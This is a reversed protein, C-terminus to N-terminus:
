LYNLYCVEFPPIDKMFRDLNLAYEKAVANSMFWGIGSRTCFRCPSLPYHNLLPYATPLPYCRALMTYTYAYCLCCAIIAPQQPFMVDSTIHLQV